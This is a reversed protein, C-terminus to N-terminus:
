VWGETKYIQLLADRAEQLTEKASPDRDHLMEVHLMIASRIPEPVTGPSAGYGGEFTVVIAASQNRVTPWTVGFAPEIFGFIDRKTVTYQDTALTQVAGNTDVYTISVVSMLPPLPVTIWQKCLTTRPWCRDISLAWRQQILARGTLKEVYQRAALLYSAILGDGDDTDIRCHAKVESITVPELAPGTIATLGYM